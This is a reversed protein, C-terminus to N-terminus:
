IQIEKGPAYFGEKRILTEGIYLSVNDDVAIQVRYDGTVPFNINNWIITHIGAFSEVQAEASSTDFPCIGYRDLLGSTLSAAPNTRWLTRNAKSIYDVTNFVNENRITSPASARPVDVTANGVVEFVPEETEVYTSTRVTSSTTIPQTIRRFFGGQTTLTFSVVGEYKIPTYNNNDPDEPRYVDIIAFANLSEQFLVGAFGSGEGEAGRGTLRQIHSIYPVWSQNSGYFATNQNLEVNADNVMGAAMGIFLDSQKYEPNPVITIPGYLRGGKLFVEGGFDGGLPRAGPGVTTAKGDAGWSVIGVEPINLAPGGNFLAGFNCYVEEDARYQTLDLYIGPEITTTTTDFGPRRIVDPKKNQKREVELIPLNLLDIRINHPGAKLEKKTPRVADNFSGLDFLQINDVYLKSVSDCLGRFTYEGDYPFDVDWDFVFLKGAEDTGSVNSPPVPSIAYLNM